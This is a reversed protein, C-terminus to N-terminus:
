CWWLCFPELKERVEEIWSVELSEGSFRAASSSKLKADSTAQWSIFVDSLLAPRYLPYVWGETGLRSCAERRLFRAQLNHFYKHNRRSSLACLSLENRGEHLLTARLKNSSILSWWRRLPEFGLINFCPNAFRFSLNMKVIFGFWFM